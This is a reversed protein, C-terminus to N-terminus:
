EYSWDWLFPFKDDGWRYGWDHAANQEFERLDCSM